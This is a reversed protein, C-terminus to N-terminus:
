KAGAYVAAPFVRLAYGVGVRRLSLGHLLACCLIYYCVVVRFVTVLRFWFSQIVLTISFCAGVVAACGCVFVVLGHAHIVFM